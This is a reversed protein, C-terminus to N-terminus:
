HVCLRFIVPADGSFFFLRESGQLPVKIEANPRMWQKGRIRRQKVTKCYPNAVMNTAAKGSPGRNARRLETIRIRASAKLKTDWNLLGSMVWASSIPAQYRMRLHTVFIEIRTLAKTSAKVDSNTGFSKYRNFYAGSWSEGPPPVSAPYM